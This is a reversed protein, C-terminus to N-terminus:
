KNEKLLKLEMILKQDTVVPLDSLKDTSKVQYYTDLYKIYIRRGNSSNIELIEYPTKDFDGSLFLKGDYYKYQIKLSKVNETVVDIKKEETLTSEPLEDLNISEFGADEEVTNANPASFEHVFESPKKEVDKEATNEIPEIPTAIKNAKKTPMKDAITASPEDGESRSKVTVFDEAEINIKQLDNSPMDVVIPEELQTTPEQKEAFLYVASGIITALAVGGFSKILTSQQAFEMWSSGIEIANLRSKLEAKRFEKLGNIVDSQFDSEAKLEPNSALEKEFDVMQEPTMEGLHYQDILEQQNAM